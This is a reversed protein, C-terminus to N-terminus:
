SAFRVNARPDFVEIQVDSGPYAVYVSNPADINYVALGGGPASAREGTKSLGPCRSRTPFRTRASM